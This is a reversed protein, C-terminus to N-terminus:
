WGLESLEKQLETTASHGATQGLVIALGVALASAAWFVFFAASYVAQRPWDIGRLDVPDVVAFVLLELLCASLFAPWAILLWVHARRGQPVTTEDTQMRRGKLM